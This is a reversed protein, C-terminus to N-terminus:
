RAIHPTHPTDRSARDPNGNEQSYWTASNNVHSYTEDQRREKTADGSTSPCKRVPTPARMPAM